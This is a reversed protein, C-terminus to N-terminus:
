GEHRLPVHLTFATGVGPVSSLTLSCELLEVLESVISLGLGAGVPKHKGPYSLQVFADFITDQRDPPIGTGSDEIVIDVGDGSRQATVSVAGSFTFKVSNSLLNTIIRTLKQADSVVVPIQGVCRLGISIGKEKAGKELLHVVDGVVHELKLTKLDLKQVGAALTASELVEEVISLLSEAQEVIRKLVKRQEDSVNGTVGELLAQAYGIVGTLPTRVEHTMNRVFESQLAYARELAALSKLVTQEALKRETIDRVVGMYRDQGLAVALIEVVV